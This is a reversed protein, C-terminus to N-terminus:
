KRSFVEHGAEIAEKPDQNHGRAVEDVADGGALGSSLLRLDDYNETLIGGATNHLAQHALKQTM